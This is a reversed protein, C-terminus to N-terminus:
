LEMFGKERKHGYFFETFGKGRLSKIKLSKIKLFRLYFSLKM